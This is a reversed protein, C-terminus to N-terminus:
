PRCLVEDLNYILNAVATRAALSPPDVSEPLPYEGEELLRKAEEPKSQYYETLVATRSLLLAREDPSPPRNAIARFLEDISGHNQAAVRAAEIYTIDNMTTLAQLPTNTRSPLVDCVLRDASDFLMTPGSIRRWFTYLTRRYLKDGSDRKYTTKGFTAESWVGEPQYPKVPAGGISPVLLGSAALAQDRIMWSPLRHRPSRSLLRNEPDKALKEPSIESGQQYTKSTVILRVLHQVDWGSDVFEAALWDLLGPHTPREGQVGFDESTKVLGIGFFMQWFRNVTVRATLPNEGSVLWSALSLRNKPAKEEMQGFVVPIAADVTDGRQNYLGTELIFTERPKAMDEMVMVKAISENLKKFENNIRDRAALAKKYEPNEKDFTLGKEREPEVKDNVSVQFRGMNHNAHSSDFRLIIDMKRDDSIPLPTELFFVAHEPNIVPKGRHVAWGTAPNNDLTGEIQFGKQEYSALAVKIPLPENGVLLSIGTLVFNGSNSRALGEPKPTHSSHQLADIRISGIADIKEPISYTVRYTDNAPNEGTALVSGTPEIILKQNDAEASQAKLITRHSFSEKELRKQVERLDTEAAKRKEILEARRRTQADTPLALVPATQGTKGGGTVPTQNFFANLAYYDRQSIPDFKHDHCRSCELTLGLWTTGMTETKDFVYEVRNEEPIRGGEGNIPHNRNFGTALIQEQSPNELLDGALQWVTFQDWGLNRQFADIVWDRWPWMTRVRDGQYGNTDAYRSVDLWDWAMREGYHPSAFLDTVLSEVAKGPSREFEREFVSASEGPLPLGTLDLALRRGLAGPTASENQTLGAERLKQQIFFDVPHEGEPVEPKEVPEFSWHGEYEAGSKVWEKLLQKEKETLKLHSKPTPMVEDPDDTTIRYVLESAELDGPVIAAYGGLDRTAGELTDLRLDASRHKEDPGHCHFCKDSLIPRIDRDFSIEGAPCSMLTLIVIASQIPVIRRMDQYIIRRFAQKPKSIRKKKKYLILM